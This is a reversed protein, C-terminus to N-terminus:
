IRRPAPRGLAHLISPRRAAARSRRQCVRRHEVLAAAPGDARRPPGLGDGHVPRTADFGNDKLVVSASAALFRGDRRAAPAARAPRSRRGRPSPPSASAGNRTAASGCLRPRRSVISSKWFLRRGSAAARPSPRAGPGSGVARGPSRRCTLFRPSASGPSPLSRTRRSPSAILRPTRACVPCTSAPGRRGRGRCTAITKRVSTGDRVLAAAVGRVRVRRPSLTAAVGRGRRPCATSLLRPAVASTTIGHPRSDRRESVRNLGCAAASSSASSARAAASTSLFFFSRFFFACCSSSASADRSNVRRVRSRFRM